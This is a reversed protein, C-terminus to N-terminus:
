IKSIMMRLTEETILGKTRMDIMKELIDGYSVMPKVEKHLTLEEYHLDLLPKLDEILADSYLEIGINM